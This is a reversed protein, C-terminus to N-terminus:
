WDDGWNNDDDFGDGNNGEDIIGQNIKFLINGPDRLADYTAGNFDYEGKAYNIDLGGVDIDVSGDSKGNQNYNYPSDIRASRLILEEQGLVTVSANAIVLRANYKSAEEVSTVKQFALQVEDGVGFARPAGKLAILGEKQDSCVAGLRKWQYTNRKNQQLVLICSKAEGEPRAQNFKVTFTPMANYSASEITMSQFTQDTYQGAVLTTKDGEFNPLAYAAVEAKRPVNVTLGNGTNINKIKGKFPLEVDITSGDSVNVPGTTINRFGNYDPEHNANDGNYAFATTPLLLLLSLTLKNLKM